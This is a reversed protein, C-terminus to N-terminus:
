KSNKSTLNSIKLINVKPCQELISSKVDKDDFSQDIGKVIYNIPKMEKPTFSFNNAKKRKLVEIVKKYDDM